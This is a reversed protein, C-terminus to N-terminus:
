IMDKTIVAIYLSSTSPPPTGPLHWDLLTTPDIPAPPSTPNLVSLVTTALYGGGILSSGNDTLLLKTDLSDFSLHRKYARM